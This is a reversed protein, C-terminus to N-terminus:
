HASISYKAFIFFVFVMKERSILSTASIGTIQYCFGV